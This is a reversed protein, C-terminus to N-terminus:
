SRNLYRKLQEEVLEGMAQEFSARIAEHALPRLRQLAESAREWDDRQRRRKGDEGIVDSLFLRVYARAIARTHHDIREAVALSHSLPIGLQALQEGAGVLTPNRIEWSNEGMARILGLREAKRLLRPDLPTGFREALEATTAFEPTTEGFSDLLERGFKLIEEAAGEPRELLRQIAELRFGEAQMAQIVRLRAVHEPGYYGTRARIEPAPLIGRSQYARINRVTAGSIRALEDITLEAAAPETMAADYSTTM